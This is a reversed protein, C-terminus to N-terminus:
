RGMLADAEKGTFGLVILKAKASGKIVEVEQQKLRGPADIFEERMAEWEAETLEKEEVDLLDLGAAEANAEMTGPTGGTQHMLPKGTSKEILVLVSM